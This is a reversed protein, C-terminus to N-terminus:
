ERKAKSLKRNNKSGIKQAETKPNGSSMRLLEAYVAKREELSLIPIDLIDNIWLGDAALRIIHALAPDIGSNNLSSRWDPQRSKLPGLLSKDSASAAMVAVSLRSYSGVAPDEDTVCAELFGRVWAGAETDNAVRQSIRDDTVEVFTQVMASLLEEKTKYHYFLGGKSVGAEAAVAELKLAQVGKALALRAAAELIKRKTDRAM